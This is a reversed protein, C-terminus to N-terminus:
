YLKMLALDYNSWFHESDEFNDHKKPLGSKGRGKEHHVLFDKEVFEILCESIGVGLWFGGALKNTFNDADGYESKQRDKQKISTM